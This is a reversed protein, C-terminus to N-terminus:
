PLQINTGIPNHFRNHVTKCGSASARGPARVRASADATCPSPAMAEAGCHWVPMAQNLFDITPHNTSWAIGRLWGQAWLSYAALHRVHCGQPNTPTTPGAVFSTRECSSGMLPSWRRASRSFSMVASIRPTSCPASSASALRSGAPQSPWPRLTSRESLM